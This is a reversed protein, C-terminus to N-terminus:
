KFLEDYGKGYHNCITEIESIKWDRKGNLKLNVTAITIDLLKALYSQTEGKRKIEALLNPYKTNNKQEEM